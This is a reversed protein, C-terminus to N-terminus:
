GTAAGDSTPKSAQAQLAHDLTRINDDFAQESPYESHVLIPPYAIDGPPITPKPEIRVNRPGADGGPPICGGIPDTSRYLNVWRKEVRTDLEAFTAANFYAPFWPAYLRQLPCGYTILAVHDRV